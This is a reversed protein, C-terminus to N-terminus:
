TIQLMMQSYGNATCIAHFADFQCAFSTAMDLGLLCTSRWKPYNLRPVCQHFDFTKKFYLLLAASLWVIEELWHRLHESVITLDCQRQSQM